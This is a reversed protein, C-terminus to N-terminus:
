EILVAPEALLVNPVERQSAVAVLTSQPPTILIHRLGNLANRGCYSSDNSAVLVLVASLSATSVQTSISGGISPVRHYISVPCYYQDLNTLQTPTSSSNDTTQIFTSHLLLCLILLIM